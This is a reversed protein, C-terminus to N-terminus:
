RERWWPKLAAVVLRRVYHPYVKPSSPDLGYRQALYARTPFWTRLAYGPRHVLDFLVRTLQGRLNAAEAFLPTVAPDAIALGRLLRTRADIPEDAAFAADHLARVVRLALEGRRTGPTLADWPPGGRFVARLDALLRPIEFPDGFEQWAFRECLHVALDHRHCAAVTVDEVTIPESRERWGRFGGTATFGSVPVRRHLDVHTGSPTELPIWGHTGPPQAVAEIRGDPALRRTHPADVCGAGHLATVADEVREPDVLLDVDGAQRLAPHPYDRAITVAGKLVVHEIAARQLVESVRALDALLRRNLAANEELSGRLLGATAGEADAAAGVLVRHALAPLLKADRAVPLVADWDVDAAKARTPAHVDLTSLLM